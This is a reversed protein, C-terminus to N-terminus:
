VNEKCLWCINVFVDNPAGCKPCMKEKRELTKPREEEIEREPVEKMAEQIQAESAQKVEEIKEQKKRFIKSLWGFM